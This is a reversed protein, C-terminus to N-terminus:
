TDPEQAIAARYASLALAVRPSIAKASRNRQAQIATVLDDAAILARALDPTLAIL